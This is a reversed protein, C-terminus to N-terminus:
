HKEIVDQWESMGPIVNRVNSFGHKQLSQCALDSRNGTRCIVYISKMQDLEGYREELEGLPISIASPIHGFAFEAPERVDLM